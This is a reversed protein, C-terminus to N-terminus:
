DAALTSKLAQGVTRGLEACTALHAHTPANKVRVGDIMTMGMEALHAAIHKISEGSWGYSGFAAGIKNQPRLGKMYALMGAVSPLVGNNHTPSGVLVAGAEFVEAMVDSHHNAKLSMLKVSVGAQVLGDAIAGAMRETARWMSDYLVVAKNAPAQRAYRGYAEIIKCVGDGRWVLGHDPAITHVDWGLRSVEDLIKLTVTSFPLVINAYYRAAQRWLEAQDVQDAFRESSALNQGFADSSLLLKDEVVYTMMSDPWHLM